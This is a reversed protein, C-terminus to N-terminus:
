QNSHYHLAETCISYLIRQRIAIDPCEQKGMELLTRTSRRNEITNIFVVLLIKIVTNVLFYALISIFLHYLTCTSQFTVKPICHTIM